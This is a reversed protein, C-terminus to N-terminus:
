PTKLAKSLPTKLYASNKAGHWSVQFKLVVSMFTGLFQIKQNSTLRRMQEM